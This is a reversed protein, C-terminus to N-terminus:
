VTVEYPQPREWRYLVIMGIIIFITMSGAAFRYALGGTGFFSIIGGWTLPGVLTAFREMITYFSFGYGMNGKNLLTSLYSRSITWSSGILLGTLPSIIAVTLFNPAIALIPVAILWGGLIIKLTRLAGIKDGVSGAVIGGVASMGLIAILLISKAADPTAFVRDLYISYNNTITLLADNFFFFAVLMPTAASVTLFSVLNKRSIKAENKFAAISIDGNEKKPEKFFIMMPLALFFFLLVSPLLPAVRSGALPLTILIGAVQGLSNAFQGIGSVRSLHESDAIDMLMPNYFVFSFQYFYQGILFLLAIPMMYQTGFGALVAAAGYSLFTGTTSINLFLKRKGYKDTLAALPPATFLLIVTSLAFIANYWFDSLGADIVIWQAFYLLFNVFIISNAFDYLAWLFLKKKDM